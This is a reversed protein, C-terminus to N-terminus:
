LTGALMADLDARRILWRNRIRSAPLEGDAIMRYVTETQRLRLINRVEAPTLLEDPTTGV